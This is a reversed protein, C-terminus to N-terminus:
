TETEILVFCVVIPMTKLQQNTNHKETPGNSTRAICCHVGIMDITWYFHYLCRVMVVNLMKCHKKKKSKNQNSAIKQQQTNKRCIECKSNAVQLRTDREISHRIRFAWLYWIAREFSFPVRKLIPRALFLFGFLDSFM